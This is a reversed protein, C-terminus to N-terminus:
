LSCGALSRQGHSEGPLFVATPQWKRRWPIKRVWPHFGPRKSRRCQCNPEKVGGKAERKEGLVGWFLTEINNMKRDETGVGELSETFTKSHIFLSESLIRLDEGAWTPHM